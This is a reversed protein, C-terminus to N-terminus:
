HALALYHMLLNDLDVSWPYGLKTVNLKYLYRYSGMIEFTLQDSLHYLRITHYIEKFLAASPHAAIWATRSQKPATAKAPNKMKDPKAKAGFTYGNMHIWQPITIANGAGPDIGRLKLAAQNNQHDRNQQQQVHAVPDTKYEAPAGAVWDAPRTSVAPALNAKYLNGSGKKYPGVDGEQVQQKERNERLRSVTGVEKEAKSPLRKGGNKFRRFDVESLTLWEKATGNIDHKQSIQFALAPGDDAAGWSPFHSGTNKYFDHKKSMTGGMTPRYFVDAAIIAVRVPM